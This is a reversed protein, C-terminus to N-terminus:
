HKGNNYEPAGLNDTDPCTFVWSYITQPPPEKASFTQQYHLQEPNNEKVTQGQLSTLISESPAANDARVKRIFWDM